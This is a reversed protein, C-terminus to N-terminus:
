FNEHHHVFTAHQQIRAVDSCAREVALSMPLPGCSFVGIKSELMTTRLDYQHKFQTVFIHIDVLNHKDKKEVERIIDTFWEFQKQTRTVWLFYIKKCTLASKFQSMKYVIDKLISAFPTVGIGGGVLVSVPYKYWDQHGEGFPGDLFLKPEVFKTDDSNARDFINRLNTTWPGVARIHLSITDEHPASTLTFPHYESRSLDPCAIRVWQGSIYNFDLPKKFTLSLVDTFLIAISAIYEHFLHASDFPIFRHCFSERLHTIINRSMTVMLSTYTFMMVSAAGRTISVGLGTIRRLGGHERENTYYQAREVFIGATVLTYLTLWFIELRHTEFFSRVSFLRQWFQSPYIPKDETRISINSKKRPPPTETPSERSPIGELPLTAQDLVQVYDKNLFIDKFTRLDMGKKGKLGVSGYITDIMESREKETLSNSTDSLDMLSMIMSSFDKKTLYGKNGNDYMNFILSAKKDADGESMLFFFDMFEQFGIFGNGDKDVLKFMHDIFVSDAKLGLIDAFEYRTLSMKQLMLQEQRVFPKLGGDFVKATFIRFFEALEKDRMAKTKAVKFISNETENDFKTYQTKRQKLFIIFADEFILRDDESDFRVVLDIYGEVRICILERQGGALLIEVSNEKVLDVIRLTQGLLDKVLIRNKSQELKIMICRLGEKFGIWEKANNHIFIDDPLDNPVINTVKTIIDKLTVQRIYEIDSDNFQRFRSDTNEFWFRDGHRLRMFQDLLIRQFLPGPGNLTTELLGGTFLDIDDISENRNDYLARLKAIAGNQIDTDSNIENWETLKPLKYAERVTNYDSVGHERARQINLAALDRRAFDLSGFVHERLDPVVIPDERESLTSAMGRILDDLMPEVTEQGNFYTNCLRLASVKRTRDGVSSTLMRWDCTGGTSAGRLWVGPPVLTHGFRMAATQFEQAIGPHIEPDYGNFPHINQSDSINRYYPPINFLNGGEDISLFRPLWDYISIKQHHAIVRKRANNFLLEDDWDPNQKALEAAVHNHWRFWIVAFTLQFPNEFGRINGSMFFRTVPKLRHDRPPLPNAFPLRFDNPAPFQEQIPKSSNDALLRGGHFERIADTWAKGPGYFLTGDLFASIENIQQRPNNPSYGTRSDYRSRLFPMAVNGLDNVDFRPHGKPVPINEYEFPCGPRQVDLVEEVLQQGYYVLVANRGRASGLGAQGSHAATSIDLPNPRGRGAPEFVGDSYAAPSRRILQGDIAGWDPHVLNNYWGDYTNPETDNLDRDITCFVTLLSRGALKQFHRECIYLMTTRLDYQHKFQTVFIHIDVLNHKDKKEVERIIDTFWEFQKQTRTVWLFYVKKCTFSSNFHSVKHVIDKLISAFPTVGIGGGVLVSVPYKYWDQHGEGFPGDLFLKPEVWKSDESNARDFINRLNTTWPGVARIHLSITDEHPASTLTFPHYESRSLDPCAVRVWQGSIYNFDLPKKFTLSLVDTFLIAISAIYTHFLHASDFPIFRHCFSERLHTIINRCMTVMLSTYTFMMVSAAGRTISVGYGTVRRLGGHERENTYYQAREVFIGATVLTYLTLWFIELRHTEFFSRVSFLRQWFQSPYIPKDETRISINSKKRPPPTETPSERSLIGEIPLTAQDLVPAYDKNLFIDKFTRLDMGKQGKLGVSGYITDIMESREKETLSTSTDSLDMLSMIMSSFDKKTLYGKNGNDYMNFILSAKKDADGESMLFFFDMFEQFGIFGNGDKDVLKFMHDIFASDAKLGLIDAFEYRTLSMKQLMLQEQRVFPKLGGDFVKATFIRFFEALEKDRIAKTKAFLDIYGEVRICILERRQGGALLIEVSNEKVLDVIRLTQGLLDKVLIRNKSQELKIMICRRGEKFGIWEKAEFEENASKVTVIRPSVTGKSMKNMKRRAGSMSKQRLRAMFVMVLYTGPISLAICTFTAIYPGASGTFYDYHRVVTCNETVLTGNNLQYTDAAIQLPQPCPDTVNNHIFVDDPLDNPDINTVNTIIDKLTVQRIYEIESDNFQRFRSDTNEFWFRDGHRIRMFQDLLIRQFLPGPGNLTTELLGGPFLDIDDISENRNQYLARLNSIAGNQIATDSNIENWDTLKPLKYAERVTNYDSVGHERARQINLAPLDRRSFDLSGFVHERLDPVVIPDERESLTSSMGRILDDMMPEVTEQGNFFTNCLRLASVTRTRDGVSSTLVRWDCTGGSSAGRLWVGPPVLTHGFRMAATQFEQAIGPHVEADYGNFPHINATDSDNRYYPPISFFNGNEDISLWRSLWDYMSIKQHHAIVRKRANNFLLEDDWDPNQSALEAAVHNHWRFWIVALTLQFPNEFGRINGIRFFRSTPKLYHDRPPPPNAFPLRINNPAPFQEQIPKSSDDALLRGGKFERIADTWTKGPGYFLTGDIYPSIENIQQRPNNPSYGTRADYRSRLVPIEINGRDTMDFRPHGKPVPINHYEFPCGPRQVDLVEEVLQQGYFVLLANRGRASGLGAQGSHAATSIDLPNPRGRGAPEFVGDSYAAPSRRILQGDIAGWDPHVLNNFWGDYTNPETDHLDTIGLSSQLRDQNSRLAISTQM